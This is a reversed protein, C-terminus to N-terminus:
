AHAFALDRTSEMLRRGVETLKANEKLVSWCDEFKEEFSSPNEANNYATNVLDDEPDFDPSERLRRMALLTRGLVFMGHYIGSLPRKDRRIPSGFLGANENLIIPDCTWVHFLHQHGAEHALHEVYRTWTQGTKLHSMSIIGLSRMSSGANLAQSKVLLVDSVFAHMESAMAPDIESIRALARNLANNSHSRAPEELEAYDHKLYLHREPAADTAVEIYANYSDAPFSADFINVVRIDERVHPTCMAIADLCGNIRKIDDAKMASLLRTHHVHMMGSIKTGVDIAAASQAARAATKPSVRECVALLHLLSSRFKENTQKRLMRAREHDPAADDIDRM